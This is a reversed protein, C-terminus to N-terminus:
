KSGGGSVAMKLLGGAFLAFLSSAPASLRPCYSSAPYQIATHKEGIAEGKSSWAPVAFCVDARGGGDYQGPLRQQRTSV